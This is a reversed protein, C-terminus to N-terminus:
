SFVYSLVKYASIIIIITLILCVFMMVFNVPGVYDDIEGYQKDDEILKQKWHKIM